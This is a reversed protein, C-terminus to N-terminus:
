REDRERQPAPPVGKEFYAVTAPKAGFGRRDRADNQAKKAVDSQDRYRDQATYRHDVILRQCDVAM